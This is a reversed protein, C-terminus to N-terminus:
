EKSLFKLMERIRGATMGDLEVIAQDDRYGKIAHQLNIAEKRAMEHRGLQKLVQSRSLMAPLYGPDLYLAKVLTQQAKELYGMESLITAYLHYHSAENNETALWKEMMDAARQLDGTNAYTRALLLMIESGTGHKIIYQDCISACEAYRSAQYSCIARKLLREADSSQIKSPVAKHNIHTAFKVEPRKKLAPIIPKDHKSFFTEAPQKVPIATFGVISKRSAETPVKRYFIGNEFLVRQFDGFYNDNLEVQSTILWGGMKLAQHLFGVVQHIKEPSMYMLLNRCFIIDISGAETVRPVAAEAVLNMPAFQIMQKIEPSIVYNKGAPRFYKAKIEDSTQRFSWPTYVGEKAKELAKRNVDTAFIDVHSTELDQFQEKLTMAISYPEEGSSCGASWIRIKGNNREDALHDPIIKQTMLNFGVQERFFYTEGITVHRSLINLENETLNPNVVWRHIEELRDGSGADRAAEVLVRMMNDWQSPTYHIGFLETVRENIESILATNSM